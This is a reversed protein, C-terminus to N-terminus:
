IHAYVIRIEHGLAEEIDRIQDSYLDALPNRVTIAWSAFGQTSTYTLDNLSTPRGCCPTAIDLASFGTDPRWAADLQDTWWPQIDLETACFPCHISEFLEYGTYLTVKDPRELTFEHHEALFEKVMDVALSEQEPEPVWTPDTPIITTLSDSVACRGPAGPCDAAAHGLGVPPARQKAYQNDCGARLTRAM